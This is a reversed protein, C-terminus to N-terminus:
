KVSSTARRSRRVPLENWSQNPVRPRPVYETRLDHAGDLRSTEYYFRYGDPDALVTLYRLSDTGVGPGPLPDGTSVLHDLSSGVAIGTREEANEDATARGDYYATVRDGDFLVAAVRAGRADWRGPRRDLAVGGVTWTAGDPSSAYRTVMQDEGGVNDLAHACVWMHWRGDHWAVVPDKLGEHADGALVTRRSDPDFSDPTDSELLDVRWHKTGPTACSVFIRWGGDPRAVLAPRELSDCDFQDRQLVAIEEFVVGDESRAIVNAYGRGVGYPRRLRYALYVAGDPGRVASPGGAWYGAGAGPPEVVVTSRSFTPLPPDVQANDEPPMRDLDAM